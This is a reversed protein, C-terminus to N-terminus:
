RTTTRSRGPPEPVAALGAALLARQVKAKGEPRVRVSVTVLPTGTTDRFGTVGLVQPEALLLGALEPEAVATTVANRIRDVVKGVPADAPIPVLATAVGYGRSSNSVTGLDGNRLHHLVGDDGRVRTLRLTMSEVTGSIGGMTVTDGVGFQDEVLIFFGSIVDRVLQQAGFGVALGVVGAGALLPGLNFGLQGVVTVFATAWIVVGTVSVLTGSLTRTRQEWREDRSASSSALRAVTRPIARRAVRVTVVALM